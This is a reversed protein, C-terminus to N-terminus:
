GLSLWACIIYEACPGCGPRCQAHPAGAVHLCAQVRSCMVSLQTGRKGPSQWQAAECNWCAPSSEAPALSRVLCSVQCPSSPWLQARPCSRSTGPWRASTARPGWASSWRQMTPWRGRTSPLWARCPSRCSGGGTLGGSCRPLYWEAQAIQQQLHTTPLCLHARAPGTNARQLCSVPMLQKSRPTALMPGSPWNSASATQCTQQSAHQANAAVAALASRARSASHRQLSSSQSTAHASWCPLALATGFKCSLQVSPQLLRVAGNSGARQRRWCNSWRPGISLM